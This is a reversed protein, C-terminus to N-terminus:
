AFKNKILSVNLDTAKTYFPHGKTALTPTLRDASPRFLLLLPGSSSPIRGAFPRQASSCCRGKGADGALQGAKYIESKSRTSEQTLEKFGRKSQREQGERKVRVCVGVCM